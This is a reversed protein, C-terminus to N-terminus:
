NNLSFQIMIIQLYFKFKHCALIFLYFTTLFTKVTCGCTDDLAERCSIFSLVQFGDYEYNKSLASEKGFVNAKLRKSIEILANRAADLEGSIQIFEFFM